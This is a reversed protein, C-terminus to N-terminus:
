DCTADYSWLSRDTASERVFFYLVDNKTKIGGPTTITDLLPNVSAINEDVMGTDPDIKVLQAGAIAYLDGDAATLQSLTASATAVLSTSGDRYVSEGRSSYLTNGIMARRSTAGSIESLTGDPQVVLVGRGGATVVSVVGNQVELASLSVTGPFTMTTIEETAPDYSYVSTQDHYYLKEGDTVLSNFESGRVQGYDTLLTSEGTAADYAWLVKGNTNTFYYLSGDLAVGFTSPNQGKTGALMIKDSGTISTRFIATDESANPIGDADERAIFYMYQPSVALLFIGAGQYLSELGGSQEASDSGTRVRFIERQGGQQLYITGDNTVITKNDRSISPRLGTAVIQVLADCNPVTPLTDLSTVVCTADNEWGWGDGDLDFASNSCVPHDVSVAVPAEVIPNPESAVPDVVCSETGNWGWGDGVPPSDVCVAGAVEALTDMTPNDEVVCSETGNWGWGDGVPPSDICIAGAVESAPETAPNSEIVCSDTGNWGWGDGVPPSDICIVGTVEPAAETAPNSEVVCSDTGNWGWGDGVPSSDICPANGTSPSGVLSNNSSDDLVICTAQAEVNWGWVPDSDFICNQHCHFSNDSSQSHCGLSNQEEGHAHSNETAILALLVSFAIGINQRIGSSVVKM